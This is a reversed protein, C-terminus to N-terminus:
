RDLAGLEDCYGVGSAISNSRNSRHRPSSLYNTLRTFVREGDPGELEM